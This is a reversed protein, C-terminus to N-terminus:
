ITISKYSLNVSQIQFCGGQNWPYHSYTISFLEFNVPGPTYAVHLNLHCTKVILVDDFVSQSIVKHICFCLFILEGSGPQKPFELLTHIFSLDSTLYWVVDRCKFRGTPLLVSSKGAKSSLPLRFCRNRSYVATDIFLQWPADCSSSDKYILLKEFRRDSEM